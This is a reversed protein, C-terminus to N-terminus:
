SSFPEKWSDRLYIKELTLLVNKRHILPVHFVNKYKTLTISFPIFSSLPAPPWLPGEGRKGGNPVDKEICTHKICICMCLLYIYWYIPILCMYLHLLSYLTLLGSQIKSPSNSPACRVGRALVVQWWRGPRLGANWTSVGENVESVSLYMSINFLYTDLNKDVRFNNKQAKNESM